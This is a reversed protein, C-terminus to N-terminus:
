LGRNSLDLSALDLYNIKIRVGHNKIPAGQRETVVWFGTVSHRLHKYIAARMHTFPQMGPFLKDNNKGNHAFISQSKKWFYEVKKEILKRNGYTKLSCVTTALRNLNKTIIIDFCM